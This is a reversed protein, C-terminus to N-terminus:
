YSCESILFFSPKLGSRKSFDEVQKPIEIEIKIPDQSYNIDQTEAVNVGLIGKKPPFYDPDYFLKLGDVECEDTLEQSEKLTFEVSGCSIVVGEDIEKEYPVGTDPDYKTVKAPQPRASAQFGAVVKAYYSASMKREEM